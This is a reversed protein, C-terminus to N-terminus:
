GDKRAPVQRKLPIQKAMLLLVRHPLLLEGPQLDTEGVPLLTGDAAVAALSFLLLPAHNMPLPLLCVTVKTADSLGVEM